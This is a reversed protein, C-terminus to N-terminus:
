CSLVIAHGDRSAVQGGFADDEPGVARSGHGDKSRPRSWDSSRMVEVKGLLNKLNAVFAGQAHRHPAQAVQQVGAVPGQNGPERIAQESLGRGAPIREGAGDQALGVGAVLVRDNNREDLLYLGVLEYGLAEDHLGEVVRHCVETEDFTGAIETFQSLDYDILASHV